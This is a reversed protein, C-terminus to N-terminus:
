GWGWIDNEQRAEEWSIKSKGVKPPRGSTVLMNPQHAEQYSHVRADM